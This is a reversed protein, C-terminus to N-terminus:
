SSEGSEIDNISQFRQIRDALMTKQLVRAYFPHFSDARIFFYIEDYDALTRDFAQIIAEEEQPTVTDPHKEYWCHRDNAQYIGYRDSLIAWPAQKQKCQEMFQQIQPNTYLHDPTVLVGTEKLQPDKEASCHTLYIRM